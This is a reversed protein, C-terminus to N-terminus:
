RVTSTMSKAILVFVCPTSNVPVFFISGRRTTIESLRSAVPSGFALEAYEDDINAAARYSKLAEAYSGANEQEAGQQVLTSWSRLGDAGLGERHLSGFPACDRLNTAVTSVISRAGSNRGVAITDRLNSEFNAYAYKMLPSSARVQKDLFM